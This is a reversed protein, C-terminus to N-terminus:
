SPPEVCYGPAPTRARCVRSNQPSINSLTKGAVVRVPLPNNSTESRTYYTFTDQANNAANTQGTGSQYSFVYYEGSRLMMRFTRQEAAVDICSLLYFNQTSQACVTLNSTAGAPRSLTGEITGFEASNTSNAAEGSPDESADEANEQNDLLAQELIGNSTVTITYEGQGEERYANAIVTYIGNQPLTITLQSNQSSTNADDNEAIITQNPDVLILYPDFDMSELTILVQQGAQGSFTYEDYLTQDIQLVADGPALTNQEELVVISPQESDPAPLPLPTSSDTPRRLLTDRRPLIAQTTYGTEVLFERLKTFFQQRDEEQYVQELRQWGDESENLLYKNALYAALLGKVDSGQQKAETYLQWWKFADDYVQKPYNRTVNIMEGDRYQWIRIPLGSEAFSGFAYAFRSDYHIIEPTGDNDLDQRRTAGQGEGWLHQISTYQEAQPDYRFIFSSSCCHAGGSYFDVIVEPEGDGDLDQIAFVDEDQRCLGEGSLVADFAVQGARTIKLRPEEICGQGPQDSYEAQVTGLETSRTVAIADPAVSVVAACAFFSFWFGSRSCNLLKPKTSSDIKKM